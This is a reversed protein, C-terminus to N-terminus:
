PVSHLTYVIFRWSKTTNELLIPCLYALSISLILWVVCL